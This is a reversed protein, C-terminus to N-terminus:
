FENAIEEFTPSLEVKRQGPWIFHQVLTWSEYSERCRSPIRTRMNFRCLFIDLRMYAILFMRVISKHSRVRWPLDYSRIACQFCIFITESKNNDTCNLFTVFRCFGDIGGVIIFNWRILKHNTDIHWLHNVGEVNYVRRQLRGKIRSKINDGNTRHLSEQLRARTVQKLFMWNNLMIHFLIRINFSNTHVATGPWAICNDIYM